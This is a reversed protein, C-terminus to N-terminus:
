PHSTLWLAAAAVGGGDRSMEQRNSKSGGLLRGNPPIIKIM